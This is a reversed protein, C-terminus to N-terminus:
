YYSFRTRAERGSPDESYGILDTSDCRQALRALVSPSSKREPPGSQSGAVGVPYGDREYVGVSRTRCWTFNVVTLDRERPVFTRITPDDRHHRSM